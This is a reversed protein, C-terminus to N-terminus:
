SCYLVFLYARFELVLASSRVVYKGKCIRDVFLCGSRIRMRASGLLHGLREELSGGTGDREWGGGLDDFVGGGL